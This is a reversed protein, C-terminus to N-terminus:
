MSLSYCLANGKNRNVNYLSFTTYRCCKCNKKKIFFIYDRRSYCNQKLVFYVRTYWSRIPYSILMGRRREKRFIALYLVGCLPIMYCLMAVSVTRQFKLVNTELVRPKTDMEFINDVANNTNYNEKRTRIHLHYIIYENGDCCCCM